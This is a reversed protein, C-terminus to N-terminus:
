KLVQGKLAESCDSKLPVAYVPITGSVSQPISEDKRFVWVSVGSEYVDLAKTANGVLGGQREEGFNECLLFIFAIPLHSALEM